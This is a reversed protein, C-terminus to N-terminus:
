DVTNILTGIKDIHIKIVDGSKLTFSQDPVIGTGTMLFAGKPFSYERFLFEVLQNFDRKIQDISIADSFVLNSERIIELKIESTAPLPSDTVFICPGLAACGDYIKAQPLYLPNEGEISRSSMDNGITYGIIKGSSSVVLTLEPEPVDWTSDKRIRVNQLHGKVRPGTAKMFLEPREALYVKEYFTGGGSDKSEEQRGLKSRYYTVGSAWVEQNEVPPLLGNSIWEHAEESPDADNITAEMKQLLQDDNIFTDWNENKLAYLKHANEIVIGHTTRYIKM